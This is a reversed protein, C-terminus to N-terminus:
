DVLWKAEPYCCHGWTGDMTVVRNLNNAYRKADESFNLAVSKSERPTLLYKLLQTNMEAFLNKMDSDVYVIGNLSFRTDGYYIGIWKLEHLSIVFLEEGAEEEGGTEEVEEGAVATVSASSRWCRCTCVRVIM